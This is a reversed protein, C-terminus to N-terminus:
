RPVAYQLAQPQPGPGFSQRLGSPGALPPRYATNHPPASPPPGGPAGPSAGYNMQNFPSTYTYNPTPPRYPTSPTPYSPQQRPPQYMTSQRPPYTTPSPMAPVTPAGGLPQASASKPRVTLNDHIAQPRRPDLVGRISPANNQLLREALRHALGSTTEKAGLLESPGTMAALRTLSALLEQALFTLLRGGVVALSSYSTGVVQEREPLWDANGKQVRLEQWGQLEEILQNNEALIDEVTEKAKGKDKKLDESLLGRYGPKTELPRKASEKWSRLRAREHMASMTDYYGAFYHNSDYTAGFTPTFSLSSM